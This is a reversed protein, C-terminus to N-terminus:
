FEPEPTWIARDNTSPSLGFDQVLQEETYPGTGPISNVQPVTYKCYNLNLPACQGQDGTMTSAYTYSNAARQVFYGPALTKGNMATTHSTVNTLASGGLATGAVLLGMFLQNMMKLNSSLIVRHKKVWTM